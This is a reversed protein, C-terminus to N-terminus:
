EARLDQLLFPGFVPGGEDAVDHSRTPGALAETLVVHDDELQETLLHKVEGTALHGLHLGFVEFVPSYFVVVTTSNCAQQLKKASRHGAAASFSWRLDEYSAKM